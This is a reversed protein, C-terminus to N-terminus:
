PSDPRLYDGRRKLREPLLRSLSSRHDAVWRYVGETAAPFRGFARAPARGGPLLRLLPPLAAGASWRRGAPSILHWSAIREEPALDALLAQGKPDQLPLPRLLDRRDWSLLPALLTRCIGCEADYLVLWNREDPM